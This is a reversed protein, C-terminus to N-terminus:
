LIALIAELSFRAVSLKARPGARTSPWTANGVCGALSGPLSAISLYVVKYEIQVM